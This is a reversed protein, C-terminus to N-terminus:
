FPLDDETPPPPTEHGSEAQKSGTDLGNMVYQTFYEATEAIDERRLDKPNDMTINHFDLAIKLSSQRVIYTQVKDNSQVPQTTRQPPKEYHPKIKPFKGPYWEYSVDVGETFKDQEKSKSAYEGVDGNKMEIEFKYFEGHASKFTGNAQIQKVTSTKIEM